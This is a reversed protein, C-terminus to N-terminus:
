TCINDSFKMIIASKSYCKYGSLTCWGCGDELTKVVVDGVPSTMLMMTVDCRQRVKCKLTKQRNVVSQQQYHCFIIYIWGYIIIFHFFSVFKDIVGQVHLYLFSTTLKKCLSTERIHSTDWLHLYTQVTQESKLWRMVFGVIVPRGAFVWILRPKHGTQDSDESDAQFFSPGRAVWQACLLSESWVPRIGLSIQTKVPHVTM